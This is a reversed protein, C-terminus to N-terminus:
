ELESLYAAVAKIQADTLSRAIPQMVASTDPDGSDQGREKDWNALKNSIYEFLQGALRPFQGNGKADTGHCSFCAPVNKDPIGTEYIEKGKAVLEKQAGGLPKPNLGHFNTALAAIIAPSLVRSVHFMINNTRRREVFARLQNQLYETQQGALRPIPYYGRFGRASSGHCEECYALKGQLAQKSVSNELENLQDAALSVHERPLGVEGSLAPLAIFCMGIAASITALVSHLKGVSFPQSSKRM